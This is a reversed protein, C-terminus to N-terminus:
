APGNRRVVDRALEHVFEEMEMVHALENGTCALRGMEVLWYGCFLLVMRVPVKAILKAIDHLMPDITPQMEILMRTVELRRVTMGQEALVAEDPLHRALLRLEEIANKM